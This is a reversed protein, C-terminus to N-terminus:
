TVRCAGHCAAGQLNRWVPCGPPLHSLPTCFRLPLAPGRALRALAALAPSRLPPLPPAAAAASSCLRVRASAGARPPPWWLRSPAGELRCPADRRLWCWCSGIASSHEDAAACAAAPPPLATLPPSCAASPQPAGSRVEVPPRRAASGQLSACSAQQRGATNLLETSDGNPRSRAQIPNIASGSRHQNVPPQALMSTGMAGSAPFTAARDTLRLARCLARSWLM